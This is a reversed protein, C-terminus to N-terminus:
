SAREDDEDVAVLKSFELPVKKMTPDPSGPRPILTPAPPAIKSMAIPNVTDGLIQEMRADFMKELDLDDDTAKKCEQVQDTHHSAMDQHHQQMAEHDAAHATLHAADHGEAKGLEALAHFHEASQKHFDAQQTHSEALQGHLKELQKRIKM